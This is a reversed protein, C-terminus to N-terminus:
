ESFNHIQGDKILNPRFKESNAAFLQKHHIPSGKEFLEPVFDQNSNRSWSVAIDFASKISSGDILKM